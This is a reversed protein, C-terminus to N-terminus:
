HLKRNNVNLGIELDISFEVSFEASNGRYIRTDGRYVPGNRCTFLVEIYVVYMAPGVVFYGSKLIM